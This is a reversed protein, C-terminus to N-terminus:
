LRLRTAALPAVVRRTYILNNPTAFQEIGDLVFPRKDPFFLAQRPDFQFQGADAEM